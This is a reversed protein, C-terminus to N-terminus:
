RDIIKYDLVMSVVHEPNKSSLLFRDIPRFCVSMARQNRAHPVQVILLNGVMPPSDLGFDPDCGAGILFLKDASFQEFM